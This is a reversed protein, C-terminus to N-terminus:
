QKDNDKRAYFGLSRKKEPTRSTMAGFTPRAQWYFMLNYITRVLAAAAERGAEEADEMSRIGGTKVPLEDHGETELWNMQYIYAEGDSEQVVIEGQPRNDTSDGPYLLIKSALLPKTSSEIAVIDNAAIMVVDLSNLTLRIEVFGDAEKKECPKVDKLGCKAAEEIFQELRKVVGERFPVFVKSLKERRSDIEDRKFKLAPVNIYSSM